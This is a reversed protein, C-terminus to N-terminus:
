KTSERRIFFLEKPIGEKVDHIEVDKVEATAPGKRAWKIMTDVHAETGAVLIEVRGDPLNRVWGNLALKTGMEHAHFRFSVGQVKGSLFVRKCVM